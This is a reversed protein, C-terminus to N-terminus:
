RTKFFSFISCFVGCCLSKGGRIKGDKQADWVSESKKEKKRKNM